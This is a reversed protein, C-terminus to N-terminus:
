LMKCGISLDVRSMTKVINIRCLKYFNLTNLEGWIGGGRSFKAHSIIYVRNPKNKKM